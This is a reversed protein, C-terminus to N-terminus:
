YAYKWAPRHMTRLPSPIIDKSLKRYNLVIQTHPVIDVSHAETSIREMISNNQLGKKADESWDIQKETPILIPCPVHKKVFDPLSFWDEATLLTQKSKNKEPAIIKRKRIRRQENKCESAHDFFQSSALFHLRNEPKYRTYNSCSM